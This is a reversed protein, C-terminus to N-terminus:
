TRFAELDNLTGAYASLCIKKYEDKTFAIPNGGASPDLLAMSAIRDFDIPETIVDKLTHPIKIKQRLSLIWNLFADFKPELGIYRCLANIKPAIRSQNAQLTYPMLIANLLGHHTHYLAGLPHALAHMAGLGKQFATAGMCSAVLMSERACFNNGDKVALELNESILRMAELAIGSAMPHYNPSCYAEINHALADMGTFATIFSPLGITLAPDLLVEVPLMKPHFIIKKVQAKQDLIVAARGVESGTGATTPIAILPLIGAENVKTWNDGRDEFNWLSENQGVMLAITKAGDIASGGGLAIIHDVGDALAQAVGKIINEGNPNVQIEAFITFKVKAQALKNTVLTFPDLNVLGSDTVVLAKTGYKKSLVPLKALANEGSEISTPFNWHCTM